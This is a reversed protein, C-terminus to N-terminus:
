EFFIQSRIDRQLLVHFEEWPIQEEPRCFNHERQVALERIANLVQGDQTNVLEYRSQYKIGDKDYTLASPTRTVRVQKPFRIQYQERITESACVVPVTRNKHPKNFAKSAIRGPTLGIPLTFASPGPVNATADLEFQTTLEFPKGLNSPDTDRIVGSGTENFRALINRVARAPSRTERDLHMSRADAEPTGKFVTKSTGLFTGDARMEIDIRSETLHESAKMKPTRSMQGLSTLVVPKDLTIEPLTGFTSFRSTPDLYLRLAPIYTIVHNFPYPSATPALSYNSGANILAPTSEIGVAKLLSEFVVVHDKCDGYGATLVADVDHPEFGGDGLHVAVYRINGLVWYYIAKAKDSPESLGATIKSALAEVKPTVRTKPAALKQYSKGVELYDNFTSIILHSIHEIDRVQGPEPPYADRQSFRYQYAEYGEAGPPFHFAPFKSLDVKGGRLGKAAINLKVSPHVYIVYETNEHVESAPFREVTFFQDGFHPTHQKSHASFTLKSGVEVQPFIIVKHKMDSYEAGSSLQDDLTRIKERAVPYKVGDKTKTSAGTVEMTELTGNYSIITEGRDEIGASTMIETTMSMYREHTKDAHIVFLHRENNSVSSPRYAEQALGSVYPTLAITM